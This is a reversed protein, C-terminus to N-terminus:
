ETRGPRRDIHLQEFLQASVSLTDMPEVRVRVLWEGVTGDVWYSFGTELDGTAGHEHRAFLDAAEQATLHAGAVAYGRTVRYFEATM